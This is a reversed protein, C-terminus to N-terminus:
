LFSKESKSYVGHIEESLHAFCRLFIIQYSLIKIVFELKPKHQNDIKFSDIIIYITKDIKEKEVFFTKSKESLGFDELLDDIVESKVLMLTPLTDMLYEAYKNKYSGKFNNIHFNREKQFLFLESLVQNYINHLNISLTFTSIIPNDINVLNGM